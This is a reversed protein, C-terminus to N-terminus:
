RPAVGLTGYSFCTTEHSISPSLRSRAVTVLRAISYRWLRQSPGRQPTLPPRARAGLFTELKFSVLIIEGNLGSMTMPGGRSTEGEVGGTRDAVECVVLV